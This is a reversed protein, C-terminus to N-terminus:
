VIGGEKEKHPRKPVLPADSGLGELPAKTVKAWRFHEREDICCLPRFVFPSFRPQFPFPAVLLGFSASSHM